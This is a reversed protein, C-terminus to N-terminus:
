VVTQGRDENPGHQGKPAPMGYKPTMRQEVGVQVERVAAETMLAPLTFRRAVHGDIIQVAVDKGRGSTEQFLCDDDLAESLQNLKDVIDSVSVHPAPIQAVRHIVRDAGNPRGPSREKAVASKPRKPLGDRTVLASQPRVPRSQHAATRPRQTTRRAATLPRPQSSTTKPRRHSAPRGISSSLSLMDGDIEHRPILPANYSQGIETLSTLNLRSAIALTQQSLFSTSRPTETSEKEKQAKRRKVAPTERRPMRNGEFITCASCAFGVCSQRTM